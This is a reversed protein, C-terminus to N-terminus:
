IIQRTILPKRDFYRFSNPGDSTVYHLFLQNYWTGSYKERWHWANCGFYLMADGHKFLISKNEGSPTTIWIPWDCSQDSDLHITLSIECSERDKHKPLEGNKIYQRTFCFINFETSTM